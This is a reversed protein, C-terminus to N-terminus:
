QKIGHALLLSALHEAVERHTDHGPHMMDRALDIQKYLHIGLSAIDESYTGQLHITDRWILNAIRIYEKALFMCHDNDSNVKYFDQDIFEHYPVWPGHHNIEEHESVQTIRNPYTWINIVARPQINQEALRSQNVLSFLISSAACGMNIVPVGTIDQLLSSFIESQNVGTGMAMSCGFLLISNDWDCQSFEPCRYGQSNFEYNVTDTHYRWSKPQDIKNKSLNHSNDMSHFMQTGTADPVGTSLLM